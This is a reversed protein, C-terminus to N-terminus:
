YASRWDGPNAVKQILSKATRYPNFNVFNSDNEALLVKITGKTIFSSDGSSVRIKDATTTSSNYTYGNKIILDVAADFLADGQIQTLDTGDDNNYILNLKNAIQTLGQEGTGASAASVSMTLGAALLCVLLINFIKKM